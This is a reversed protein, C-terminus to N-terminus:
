GTSEDRQERRSPLNAIEALDGNQGDRQVTKTDVGLKEAIEEQTWGLRSLHWSMAARSAKGKQIVHSVWDRLTRESVGFPKAYERVSLTSVKNKDLDLEFEAVAIAKLEANSLRDGHKASLTAAYYKKSQGEPVEHYEVPIKDVGAMEYALQRHRGDLLISTGKELVLPPFQEGAEIADAYREVTSTHTKERPYISPEWVISERSVLVVGSTKEAM